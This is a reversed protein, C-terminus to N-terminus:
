YLNYHITLQLVSFDTLTHNTWNSISEFETFLIGFNCSFRSTFDYNYEIGYFYSEDFHDLQSGSEEDKDFVYVALMGASLYIGHKQYYVGPKVGIGINQHLEFRKTEDSSLVLRNNLYFVEIVTALYDNIILNNGYYIGIDSINNSTHRNNDETTNAFSSIMGVGLYCTHQAYLVAPFFILLLLLRRM